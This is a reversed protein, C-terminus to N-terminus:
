VCSVKKGPFYYKTHVDTTYFLLRIAQPIKCKRDDCQSILLSDNSSLDKAKIKNYNNLTLSIGLYNM